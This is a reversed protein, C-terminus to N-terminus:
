NRFFYVLAISSVWRNVFYTKWDDSDKAYESRAPKGVKGARYCPIIHSGRLIDAPDLFGFSDDNSVDPFHLEDLRQPTWTGAKTMEYWRVWIFEIRRPLFDRNGEGLYIVNAHFVNLVKAYWFPHGPSDPSVEPNLVM